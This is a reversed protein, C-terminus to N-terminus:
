REPPPPPPPLNGIAAGARAAEEASKRSDVGPYFPSGISTSLNQLRRAVLFERTPGREPLVPPDFRYASALAMDRSMGAATLADAADAKAKALNFSPDLSLAQNYYVRAAEFDRADEKQLGICYLLFAQLNKTPVRQIKEQEARSIKIGMDKIVGFVLDKEVKFLNELKDSQATAERFKKKLIDWSSVDLRLKEDSSVSFTGGVIRGASLLKGLRPATAPDVKQTQGFRLEALLAEIRIREVLKLAGVQGLDIIVMESLGTGLASYKEDTGQYTLPFVAVTASSMDKDGLVQEQALLGQLQQQIIDRTLARYRGEMLKRYPSLVSVDTYNIYAALATQSNNETELTLGYYFLTKADKADITSAKKLYDKAQPYQRAQFYIVGLDRLADADKPDARLKAELTAIQKRYDAINEQYKVTACSVLVFSLLLTTVARSLGTTMALRKKGFCDRKRCNLNSRKARLSQNHPIKQLRDSMMEKNM